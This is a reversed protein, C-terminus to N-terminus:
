KTTGKNREEERSGEKTFQHKTMTTHKPERRKVKKIDVTPKQNTIVM